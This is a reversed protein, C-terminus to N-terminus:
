EVEAVSRAAEGADILGRRESRFRRVATVQLAPSTSTFVFKLPNPEALAVAIEALLASHIMAIRCPLDDVAVDAGKGDGCAMFGTRLDASRDLVGAAVERHLVDGDVEGRGIELLLPWGVM